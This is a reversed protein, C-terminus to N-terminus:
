SDNVLMIDNVDYEDCCKNCSPTPYVKNVENSKVCALVIEKCGKSPCM